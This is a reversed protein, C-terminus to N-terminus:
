KRRVRLTGYDQSFCNSSRSFSLKAQGDWVKLCACDVSWSRVVTGPLDLIHEDEVVIQSHHAYAFIGEMATGVQVDGSTEDRCHDPRRGKNQRGDDHRFWFPEAPTEFREDFPGATKDTYSLEEYEIVLIRCAQLLGPRPDALSLLPLETDEALLGEPIQPMGQLYAEFNEANVNRHLGFDRDWLRKALRERLNPMIAEM